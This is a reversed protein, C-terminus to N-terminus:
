LGVLLICQSLHIIRLTFPPYTTFLSLPFFRDRMEKTFFDLDHDKLIIQALNLARCIIDQDLLIEDFLSM